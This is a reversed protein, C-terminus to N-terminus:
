FVFVILDTHTVALIVFHIVLVVGLVSVEFFVFVLFGVLSAILCTVLAIWWIMLLLGPRPCNAPDYMRHMPRPQSRQARDVDRVDVPLQDAHVVSWGM